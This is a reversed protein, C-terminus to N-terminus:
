HFYSLWISCNIKDVKRSGSKCDWDMQQWFDKTGIFLTILDTPNNGLGSKWLVCNYHSSFIISQNHENPGLLLLTYMWSKFYILFSNQLLLVKSPMLAYRGWTVMRRKQFWFKFLYVMQMVPKVDNDLILLEMYIIISSLSLLKYNVKGEEANGQLKTRLSPHLLQGVSFIIYCIYIM